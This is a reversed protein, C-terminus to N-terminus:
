WGKVVFQVVVPGVQFHYVSGKGFRFWRDFWLRWDSELWAEVTM